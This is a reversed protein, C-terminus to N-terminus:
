SRWLSEPTPLQVTAHAYGRAKRECQDVSHPPLKFGDKRDGYSRKSEIISKAFACDSIVLPVALVAHSSITELGTDTRGLGTHGGDSGRQDSYLDAATLQLCLLEEM